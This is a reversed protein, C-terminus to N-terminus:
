KSVELTIGNHGSLLHLRLEVIEVLRIVAEVVDVLAHLEVIFVDIRLDLVM